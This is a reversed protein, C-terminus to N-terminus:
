WKKEDYEDEKKNEEYEDELYKAITSILKCLNVAMSINQLERM